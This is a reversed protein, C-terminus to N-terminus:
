KITPTTIIGNPRVDKDALLTKEVFFSPAQASSGSNLRDIYEVDNAIGSSTLKWGDRAKGTKVPTARKLDAVLKRKKAEVQIAAVAAFEKFISSKAV